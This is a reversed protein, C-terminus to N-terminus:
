KEKIKSKIVALLGIPDIPKAVYDDFGSKLIKNRDDKMAMATLAVVPIKKTNKEKKLHKIVAFGDMKPLAIDLLILDPLYSKAKELGVEGDIAEIINYRNKLIAKLTIMNDPNDEVVLVSSLSEIPKDAKEDKNYEERQQRDIETLVRKIEGSLTALSSKNKSLISAVNGNLMMKDQDTLDKATVIIVPLNITKPEKRIKKIVQFGDIEPMLLDLILVDPLSKKLLDLCEKGGTAVITSINESKIIGTMTKRDFEDDDVIMVSHPHHNIKHIESILTDKIVPKSVYGVAGLAFGTHKDKSKTVVIVPINTTKPNRKLKQLIEWGDIGPMIIDLTIAYPMFKEALELAEIGSTAAIINYQDKELIDSIFQV